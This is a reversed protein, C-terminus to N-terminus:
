KVKWTHFRDNYEEKFSVLTLIPYIRVKFTKSIMEKVEFLTSFNDELLPTCM